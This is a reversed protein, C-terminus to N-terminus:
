PAPQVSGSRWRGNAVGAAVLGLMGVGDGVGFEFPREGVAVREAADGLEGGAPGGCEDEVGGADGAGLREAGLAHAAPQAVCQGAALGLQPAGYPFEDPGHEGRREDLEVLVSEHDVVPALRGDVQVGV